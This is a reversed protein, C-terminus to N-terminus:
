PAAPGLLAEVQEPAVPKRLMARAGAFWARMKELWTAREKIVVLRGVGRGTTALQQLFPWGPSGPLDFDVLAVEYRNGQLLELAQAASEAEDALVWGHLALKARLYLREELPACAILARPRPPANADEPPQTEPGMDVEVDMDLDFSLEPVPEFVEDMAQVVDTWNLPRHFSRWIGEPPDEGIWALRMGQPQPSEAEVRAEYSHADLLAMQPAEPADPAWLVYATPRSESLRFVTNLAHREVDTFGVVKIFVRQTM